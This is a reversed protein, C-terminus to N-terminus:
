WPEKKGGCEKIAFEFARALREALSRDAILLDLENWELTHTVIEEGSEKKDRRLCKVASKNNYCYLALWVVNPPLRQSENPEEIGINSYDFSALDGTIQRIVEFEHEPEPTIINRYKRHTIYKERESLLFESKNFALEYCLETRHTLLLDSDDQLVHSATVIPPQGTIKGSM